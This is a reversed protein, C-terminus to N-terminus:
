GHTVSTRDEKMKVDLPQDFYTEMFRLIDKEDSIVQRASDTGQLDLYFFGHTQCCRLLRSIEAPDRSALNAFDITELPAVNVERGHVIVSTAPPPTPQPSM